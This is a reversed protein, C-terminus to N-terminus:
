NRNEGLETPLPYFSATRVLKHLDTTKPSSQEETLTRHSQLFKCIDQLLEKVTCFSLFVLHLIICIM